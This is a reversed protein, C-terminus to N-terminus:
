TLRNYLNLATGALWDMTLLAVAANIGTNITKFFKERKM